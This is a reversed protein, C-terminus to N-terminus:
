TCEVTDRWEGRNVVMDSACADQRVVAGEEGANGQRGGGARLSGVGLGWEMRLGVEVPPHGGAAGEDGALRRRQQRASGARRADHRM